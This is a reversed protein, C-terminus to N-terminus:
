KVKFDGRGIVGLVERMNFNHKRILAVYDVLPRGDLNEAKAIKQAHQAFALTTLEGGNFDFFQVRSGFPVAEEEGDFLSEKGKPTTTFVWFSNQVMSPKELTTLLRRLVPGRIRAAENVIFAWGQCGIVRKESLAEWERIQDLSLDMADIENRGYYPQVMDALIRATSTKGTGSLGTIWFAQGLLGEREIIDKITAIVKPQGIVNDLTKPRYAEALKMNM